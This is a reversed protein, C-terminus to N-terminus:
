NCGAFGIGSLVIFVIGIIICYIQRARRGWFYEIPNNITFLDLLIRINLWGGILSLIGIALFIYNIFDM